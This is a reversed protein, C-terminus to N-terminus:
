LNIKKSNKFKFESLIGAIMRDNNRNHNGTKGRFLIERM